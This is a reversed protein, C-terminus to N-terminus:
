RRQASPPLPAAPAAPLRPRQEDVDADGALVQGLETRVEALTGPSAAAPLSRQPYGKKAPPTFGIRRRPMSKRSEDEAIRLVKM